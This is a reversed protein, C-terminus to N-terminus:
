VIWRVIVVVTPPWTVEFSARPGASFDICSQLDMLLLLLGWRAAVMLRIRCVAALGEPASGSPPMNANVSDRSDSYIRCLLTRSTFLYFFLRQVRAHYQSFDLPPHDRLRPRSPSAHRDPPSQNPAHKIVVSSPSQFWIVCIRGQM